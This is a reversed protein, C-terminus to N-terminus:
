DPLNWLPSPTIDLRGDACVSCCVFSYLLHDRHCNHHRYVVCSKADHGVCLCLGLNGISNGFVSSVSRALVGLKYPSDERRCYWQIGSLFGSDTIILLLSVLLIYWVDDIAGPRRRKLPHLVQACVSGISLVTRGDLARHSQVSSYFFFPNCTTRICPIWMRLRTERSSGLRVGRRRYAVCSRRM